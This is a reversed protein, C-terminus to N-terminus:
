GALIPFNQIDLWIASVLVFDQGLIGYPCSKKCFAMLKLKLPPSKPDDQAEITERHLIGFFSWSRVVRWDGDVLHIYEHVQISNRVIILKEAELFYGRFRESFRPRSPWITQGSIDPKLVSIVLRKMPRLWGTFILALRKLHCARPLFVVDIDFNIPITFDNEEDDEQYKL